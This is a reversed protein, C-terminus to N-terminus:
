IIKIKIEAIVGRLVAYVKIVYEDPQFISTDVDFSLRNLGNAGPMVQFPLSGSAGSFVESHTKDTQSPSIAFLVEDGVTLNTTATVTFRDGVHHDNVPDIKIFPVAVLFQFKTFTDDISSQNIADVLLLVADAGRVGKPGFISFIKTGKKPNNGLVNHEDSDTYIDFEENMMPHQVVVFYQGPEMQKTESEALVIAFSSDPNVVAIKRLFYNEGFIWIQVGLKPHGTATGTIYISDGQAVVSQSATASVFPKKLIISVTGYAKNKLNNRTFPGECAYITYTGADILSSIKSTDWEYEWTCDDKVDIKLFTNEDENKAEIPFQDLKRSQSNPDLPALSLFVSKKATCTGSLRITEGLYYSQSGAAVITVAGRQFAVAVTDSVQDELGNVIVRYSGAEIDYGPDWEFTWTNNKSVEPTGIEKGKSFKDAPGFAVLQVTKGSVIATGYFRFLRGIIVSDVNATITVKPDKPVVGSLYIYDSINADTFEKEGEQLIKRIKDDKKFKEFINKFPERNLPAEDPHDKYYEGQNDIVWDYFIDPGRKWYAQLYFLLDMENKIANIFDSSVFNLISWKILLEEEIRLGKIQNGLAIMLKLSNISRKVKRPNRDSSSIILDIYPRLPDDSPLEQEFYTKIDTNRLDPLNFQLQVMKKIYEEGSFGYDQYNLEIARSILHLDLGFVFICGRQDFFLNISELVNAISKPSCRDLDDIFIVLVGNKDDYKGNKEQVFLYQLIELMYKQFTEYFPLEIEYKPPEQYETLDPSIGATLTKALDSIIKLKKIRERNKFYKWSVYDFFRVNAFQNKRDIENYIESILSALMSNTESYKWADFWVTKVHRGENSKLHNDLRSRLTKMLSTKGCGWKGNIVISLPTSVDSYLIINQLSDVYDDFNFYRANDIPSDSFIKMTKLNSQPETM